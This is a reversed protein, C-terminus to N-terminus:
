CRAAPAAAAPATPTTPTATPTPRAPVSLRVPEGLLTRRPTPTPSPTATRSPAPGPGPGSGAGYLRLGTRQVTGPALRIGDVTRRHGRVDTVRVTFPGSGAGSEAIWYNYDTRELALWGGDRRVQVSRLRNGHGDVLIALWYASSGEKVRFSLPGAPPDTVPRVTVDVLGRVPDAIRAFAARSLDVHGPECEPCQDIVKVRVRGDPGTVDLYGGCAAGADYEAPGLAVYLDDAPWPLMCNGATASPTYFTARGSTTAAAACGAGAAAQWALVGAV